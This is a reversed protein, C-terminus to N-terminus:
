CSDGDLLPMPETASRFKTVLKQILCLLLVILIGGILCFVRNEFATTTDLIVLSANIASVANVIQKHKYEPTFYSLYGLALIGIYAFQPPIILQFLVFFMILGLLTAISRHKIRQVTDKFDMQTLSMTVISIWLPKKLELFMGTAMALAIGAAMRLFYGSNTKGLLIQQKLTRGEKDYGKKRWALLTAAAVFIGAAAAGLMRRPLEPWPVPTAQCFLFCLIFSIYPKMDLPEGSLLMLLLVFLFNLLFALWPSLLATQGLISGGLYLGVTMAAMPIPRIGLPMGPLTTFGVGIAVGALINQTGFLLQFVTIFTLSILFRVANEAMAKWLHHLKQKAMSM